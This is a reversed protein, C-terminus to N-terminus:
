FTFTLASYFHDIDEQKTPDIERIYPGPWFHGWGAYFQTHCDLQWIYMIDLEAGIRKSLGVGPGRSIASGPSYLADTDEARWFWHNAIRIEMCASPHLLLYYQNDINNQRGVVDLWGLYGHGRPYLQSFTEIDTDGIERDGSAYDVGVWIEPYLGFLEFRSGFYIAFMYANINSTDVEGFQYAAEIDFLLCHKCWPIEGKSWFGITYRDEDGSADEYVADSRSRGFFYLSLPIYETLCGEAWGGYVQDGSTGNFDYKQVEALRAYFATFAWDCLCLEVLAGDWIRRTNAWEMQFLLRRSGFEIEQRGLRITIADCMCDCFTFEVFANHLAITDMDITRRGGPLDRDTILSSKAQLFIRSWCNPHIETHLFLRSVAFEDDQTEDFNFNRWAEGRLRWQGGFGYWADGDECFRRFKIPDFCDECPSCALFSWDEEFRRFKYKRCAKQECTNCSASCDASAASLDASGASLCCLSLVISLVKRM